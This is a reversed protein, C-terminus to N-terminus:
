EKLIPKSLEKICDQFPKLKEEYEKELEETNKYKGHMLKLLMEDLPYRFPILKLIADMVQKRIRFYRGIVVVDIGSLFASILPILNISGQISQSDMQHYISAIALISTSLITIAALSITREAYYSKWINDTIEDLGNRKHILFNIWDSSTSKLNPM